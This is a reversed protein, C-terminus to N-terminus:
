GHRLCQHRRVGQGAVRRTTSSRECSSRRSVRPLRGHGNPGIDLRQPPMQDDASARHRRARAVDSRGRGHRPRLTQGITTTNSAVFQERRTGDVTARTVRSERSSTSGRRAACTPWSPASGAGATTRARTSSTPAPTTTSSASAFSTKVSAASSPSSPWWAGRRDDAVVRNPRHAEPQAHANQRAMEGTIGRVRAAASGLVSDGPPRTGARAGRRRRAGPARGARRTRDAAGGLGALLALSARRRDRVSGVVARRKPAPASRDVAIDRLAAIPPVRGGPPGAPVGLRGDGRDRGGVSVLISSASVVSRARRCRRRRDRGVDGEALPLGSAPALGAASAVVGIACRKPSCRHAAGPPPQGRDGAADGDGETRQAVTISFTNNIIFAGVFVAVVAFVLMFVKFSALNDHFASGPGRRDGTAGTVVEVSPASSRVRRSRGVQAQQSVGITRDIAVGDVQGPGRRAVAPCRRRHVARRDGRRALRCDGFKAIGM